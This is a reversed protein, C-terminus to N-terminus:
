QLQKYSGDCNPKRKSLGCTCDTLGYGDKIRQINKEILSSKTSSQKSKSFHLLYGKQRGATLQKFAKKFAPNRTFAVSLEEVMKYDSLKKTVVKKNSAEIEIAEKIYQQIIAKLSKIQKISQFRIQRASQVNATQQVLLQKADKLLAGKQFLIACYDRFEHILVINKGNHSYSPHIWKFDEQLGCAVIIERLLTLEEKWNKLGILYQDVEKNM